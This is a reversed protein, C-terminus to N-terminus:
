NTCPWANSLAAQALVSAEWHRNWANQKLFDLVIDRAQGVTAGEPICVTSRGSPPMQKYGRVHKEHIELIWGQMDYIAQVYSLGAYRDFQDSSTLDRLLENGTLAKAQLSTTFLFIFLYLKM